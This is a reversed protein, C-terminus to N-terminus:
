LKDAVTHLTRDGFEPTRASEAGPWHHAGQGRAREGAAVAWHGPAASLSLRGQLEGQTKVTTEQTSLFKAEPFPASFPM